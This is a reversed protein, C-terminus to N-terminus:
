GNHCAGQMAPPSTAYTTPTQNSHHAPSTNRGTCAGYDSESSSTSHSSLKLLLKGRDHVTVRSDATMVEGAVDIVRWVMARIDDDLVREQLSTATREAKRDELPEPAAGQRAPRQQPRPSGSRSRSSPLCGISTIGAVLEEVWSPIAANLARLGGLGLGGGGHDHDDPAEVRPPPNPDLGFRGPSIARSLAAAAAGARRSRAM